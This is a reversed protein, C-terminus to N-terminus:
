NIPAGYPAGSYIDRLPEGRRFYDFSSSVATVGGFDDFFASGYPATSNGVIRMTVIGASAPTFTLSIQSWASAAGTSTVTANAVGTQTGNLVQLQPLTGAYASDHYAWISVTTSQAAVPIAFDCYGPGLIRLSNAGSHAVKTSPQCSNEVELAGPTYNIATTTSGPGKFMSYKSNAAPAIPFAPSITINSGSTGTSGSCQGSGTGATICVVYGTTENPVYAANTDGVTTASGGTAVSTTSHVGHLIIYTSTNDPTTQWNGQVTLATTTNTKIYKVQGSGTGGTVYVVYNQWSNTGWTKTSDVLTTATASSATGEDGFQVTGYPRPTGLMDTTVQDTYFITIRVCDIQATISSAGSTNKASIAVGFNASNVITPTLAVGWLDGGATNGYSQWTLSVPWTGAIAHDTGTITSTNDILKISNDVTTGSGTQDRQIDVMVGFITAGAPVNFGFNTATMYHGTASTTLVNTALVTDSQVANGPNTWDITGVATSNATTVPPLTNASVAGYNKYSALLEPAGPIKRTQGTILFQASQWQPLMAIAQSSNAGIAVANRAGGQGLFVNYDEICQGLASAQFVSNGSVVNDLELCPYTSSISASSVRVFPTWISSVSNHVISIGNGFFTNAGSSKITVVAPIAAALAGTMLVLNNKFILGDSYDSVSSTPLTICLACAAQGMAFVNSDVVWNGVQNATGAYTISQVTGISAFIYNQVLQINTSGAITADIGGIPQPNTWIYFGKFLINSKGNLVITAVSGSTNGYDDTQTNGNISVVGVDGTQVGDGDAILSVLSAYTNNVTVTERYIGAGVYVTDGAATCASSGGGCTGSVAHSITLWAAGASTGANSDSGTKRIYYTTAWCQSALLLFLLARKM